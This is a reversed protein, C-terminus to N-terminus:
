KGSIGGSVIFSMVEATDLTLATVATRPVVVLQGAFHYAQPFYVAVDDPRGYREMSDRTVFGVAKVRGDASLEVMVPRNFRRKEGMFASMLDKLSTHLLKVLPLRDLLREVLALVRRTFFNSALFGFATVGVLMVLFGLGPPLPSGILRRITEDISLFASGAAWVTVIIPVLFILGQLFYYAIRRM